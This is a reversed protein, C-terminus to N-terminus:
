LNVQVDFYKIKFLKLKRIDGVVSYLHFPSELGFEMIKLYPHLLISFIFFLNRFYVPKNFNNAFFM